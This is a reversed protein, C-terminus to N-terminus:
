VVRVSYTARKSGGGVLVKASLLVGSRGRIQPSFRYTRRLTGRFTFWGLTDVVERGVLVQVIATGSVPRSGTQAKVVFRWPTGARVQHGEGYLAVVLKGAGRKKKPKPRPRTATTATTATRPPKGTTTTVNTTTATSGAASGDDGGGCAALLLPLVLLASISKARVGVNHAFHRLSTATAQVPASVM